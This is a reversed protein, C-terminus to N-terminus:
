WRPLQKANKTKEDKLENFNPDNIIRKMLSNKCRLRRNKTHQESSYGMIETVENISYGTVFLKIIEQCDKNLKEFHKWYLKHKEDNTLNVIIDNEDELDECEELSCSKQKRRKLETYWIRKAIAFLYTGFSVYLNFNNEKVKRYIVMISEQFIDEADFDDGNNTKVFNKIVRYNEEYIFYIIKENRNLMGHIIEETSYKKM